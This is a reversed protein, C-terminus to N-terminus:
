EMLRRARLINEVHPAIAEFDVDLWQFGTVGSRTLMAELSVRARGGLTNAAWQSYARAWVEINSTAYNYYARNSTAYTTRLKTMAESNRVADFFGDFADRVEDSEYLGASSFGRSASGFGSTGRYDVRHGYEHLFSVVDDGSGRDNVRIEARLPANRWEDLKRRRAEPSERVRRPKAPRKGAAFHGGKNQAKGTVVSLKAPGERIGHLKDMAEAFERYEKAKKSTFEFTDTLRGTGAAPRPEVVV